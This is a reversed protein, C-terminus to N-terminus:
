LKWQSGGDYIEALFVTFIICDAERNQGSLHCVGHRFGISRMTTLPNRQAGNTDTM